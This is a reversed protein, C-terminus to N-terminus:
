SRRYLSLLTLDDRFAIDESTRLLAEELRVLEEEGRAYDREGLIRRFHSEAIEEHGRSIIERAGDTYLLLTDGVGLHADGVPYHTAPVMGLAPGHEDLQEVTRDARIVLPPPHGANAYAFAGTRADYVLHVATAFFEGESGFLNAINRNLSGMLEQVHDHHRNANTWLARLQMAYLAASVGHGTVDALIIAYRHPDLPAINYFDGGVMEVPAYRFALTFRPDAPPVEALTSRQIAQARQLEEYGTSLDRFVEIGGIVEGRGGLIPSVTVEVPVRTGNRHQAFLLRPQESASNTVMARYLPCHEKGCLAHGDKDIHCLFNDRCARGIADSRNWGTIREAARNWAVIRRELDTIYVGDPMSDLIAAALGGQLDGITRIGEM